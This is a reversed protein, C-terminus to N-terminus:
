RVWDTGYLDSDRLTILILCQEYLEWGLKRINSPQDVKTHNSKEWCLPAKLSLHSCGPTLWMFGDWLHPLNGELLCSTVTKSQSKTQQEPQAQTVSFYFKYRHSPDSRTNNNALHSSGM